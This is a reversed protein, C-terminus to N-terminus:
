GRVRGRAERLRQLRRVGAPDHELAEPQNIAWTLMQQYRVASVGFRERIASEKAGAYKWRQGEFDLIARHTDTFEPM